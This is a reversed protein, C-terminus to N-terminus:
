PRPRRRPPRGSRRALGLHEGPQGVRPQHPQDLAREVDAAPLGQHQLAGALLRQALHQAAALPQGQVQQFPPAGVQQLRQDGQVPGTDVVPVDLGGVEADPLAAAVPGLVQDQEVERQGAGARGGHGGARGGYRSGNRSAGPVPATRSPRRATSRRRPATRSPWRPPGSTRRRATRGPTPGRRPWRRPRCTRGPRPRPAPRTRGCRAPGCRWPVGRCRRRSARRTATPTRGPGWSWGRRRRRVRRRPRAPRGRQGLRAQGGPGQGRQLGVAHGGDAVQDRDVRHPQVPQGPHGLRGAALDLGPGPLPPVLEAGRDGAAPWAALGRRPRAVRGRGSGTAAASSSSACAPVARAADRRAM